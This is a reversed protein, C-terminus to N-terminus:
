ALDPEVPMGDAAVGEGAGVDEDNLAALLREFRVQAVRADRHELQAEGGPTSNLGIFRDINASSPV